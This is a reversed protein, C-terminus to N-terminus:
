CRPASVAHLFRAVADVRWPSLAFARAASFHPVGSVIIWLTTGIVGIWLLAALRGIITIRRYLLLTPWRRGDGM